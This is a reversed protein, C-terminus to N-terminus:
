AQLTFTSMITYEKGKTLVTSFFGCISAGIESFWLTAWGFHNDLACLNNIFLLSFTTSRKLARNYFVNRIKQLIRSKEWGQCSLKILLQLIIFAFKCMRWGTICVTKSIHWMVNEGSTRTSRVPHLYPFFPLFSPFSLIYCLLALMLLYSFFVHHNAWREKSKKKSKQQNLAEPGTSQLLRCFVITTSHLLVSSRIMFVQNGFTM